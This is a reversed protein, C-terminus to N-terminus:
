KGVRDEYYVQELRGILGVFDPHIERETQPTLPGKELTLIYGGTVIEIGVRRGIVEKM